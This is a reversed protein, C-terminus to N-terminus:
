NLMFVDGPRMSNARREAIARVSEGMSGLHVPMHPANSVLNAQPDFVACSFDLREKVNASYATKQLMAGMQEAVSMFLNNFVELMVPDAETGVAHRRPLAVVRTMVIHNKATVSAQWGPEIVITSVPDQIVAPGDLTDGPLLRERTHIPTNHHEGAMYTQVAALAQPTHDAPEELETEDALSRSAGIVDITASAAVLPNTPMLVGFQRKHDREFQARMSDIDALDIELATDTGEYKLHVQPRQHMDERACGQAILEAVAKEGLAALETRIRELLAEDLRADVPMERHASMNALGMGYASLVGGHPHILVTKMGLADAVLCAHQGGAGGFCNLTYLTVDHGRQGSIPK